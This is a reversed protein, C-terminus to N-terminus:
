ETRGRNREAAVAAALHGLEGVDIEDTGVAVGREHLFHVNRETM